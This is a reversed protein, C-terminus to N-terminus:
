FDIDFPNEVAVLDFQFQNEDREYRYKWLDRNADDYTGMAAYMIDRSGNEMVRFCYPCKVEKGPDYTAKYIDFSNKCTGCKVKIVTSM